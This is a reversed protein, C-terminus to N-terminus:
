RRFSPFLGAQTSCHGVPARWIASSWVAAPSDLDRPNGCVSARGAMRNRDGRLAPPGAAVLGGAPATGPPISPGSGDFIASPESHGRTTNVSRQESKTPKVAAGPARSRMSAKTKTANAASLAPNLVICRPRFSRAYRATALQLREQSLRSIRNNAAKEPRDVSWRSVGRNSRTV